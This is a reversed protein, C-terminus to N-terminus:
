NLSKLLQSINEQYEDKKKKLASAVDVYQIRGVKGPILKEVYLYQIQYFVDKLNKEVKHVENLKDSLESSESKIKTTLENISNSENKYDTQIQKVATNFANLDKSHKLKNLNDDWSAYISTRREIHHILASVLGSVRQRTESHEDKAISFDLRVWIIVTLFLIFIAGKFILPAHLMFGKPFKYKIEFDKIHNEVINSIQLKLTPRGMTDFYTYHHDDPLRTIPYPTQLEIDSSKEPLIIHITAEEIIMNDYLHDILRMKLLYNDGSNYLYEYAPVNYGITYHTKWGGFLPFRPRIDLEVSDLLTRQNSTSINGIVDRYYVSNASAPLYMKFSKVSSLGSNTERQYDYRSFSGKLKAGHHVIDIVETVAINGWHSVQITRTLKTVKLFPSNNDYHINIQSYSFPELPGQPGYTIDGANQSVPSLNTYEELRRTGTQYKISSKMSKYPSYFFANGYYMMLQREKQIIEEPYPHLANTLVYEVVIPTRGKSKLPRTTNFDIQFFQKDNHGTVIVPKVNLGLRNSEVVQHASIYSIYIKFSPEFAYLIYDVSKEDNNELSIRCEGKVLQSSLDVLCEVNSLLIKPNIDISYTSTIAFAILLIQFFIM